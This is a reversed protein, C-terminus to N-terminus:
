LLTVGFEHVLVDFIDNLTTVGSMKYLVSITSIGLVTMSPALRSAAPARAPAPASAESGPGGGPWARGRM